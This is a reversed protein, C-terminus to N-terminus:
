AIVCGPPPNGSGGGTPDEENKPLDEDDSTFVFKDIIYTFADMSPSSSFSTFTTLRYQNTPLSSSDLLRLRLKYM